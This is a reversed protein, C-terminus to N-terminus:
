NIEEDTFPKELDVFLSPDVNNGYLSPLDFHMTTDQSSGMRKRFAEWLIAAKSEHDSFEVQEDNQLVAIYNHRHNITAKTHFFKTNEDGFKVGKIKGKTEL